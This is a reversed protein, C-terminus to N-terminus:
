DDAVVKPEDPKKGHRWANVKNRVQAVRDKVSQPVRERFPRHLGLKLALAGKANLPVFYRPCDHREFGFKVRFAGLGRYAWDGYHFHHLGRQSAIEVGKAILADMVCKDRDAITAIIHVTRLIDEGQFLKMFGILRGEFYAGVYSTCEPFSALDNKITAANKGYHLFARGQRVPCENYITEIGRVFEDDVTVAKLEVGSKQAKRTKNRAKFHLGNWWADYDKFTLLSIPAAQKQYSYAPRPLHAEVLFNLVDAVKTRRIEEVFASPDSLYEFYEHRLRAIKLAQGTVAIEIKGVFM